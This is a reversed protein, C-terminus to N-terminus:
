GPLSSNRPSKEDAKLAQHTTKAPEKETRPSREGALNTPRPIRGGNPSAILGSSDQKEGNLLRSKKERELTGSCISTSRGVRTSSKNTEGKSGGSSSSSNWSARPTVPSSAASTVASPIKNGSNVSKAVRSRNLTGTNGRFKVAPPEVIPKKAIPKARRPVCQPTRFGNVQHQFNSIYDDNSFSQSSTSSDQSLIGSDRSSSSSSPTKFTEESTATHRSIYRAHRQTMPTAICSLTNSSITTSASYPLGQSTQSHQNPTRMPFRPYQGTPCCPSNPVSTQRVMQPTQMRYFSYRIGGAQPQMIGTPLTMSSFRQSPPPEEIARHVQRNCSTPQQRVTAVKNPKKIISYKTPEQPVAVKSLM